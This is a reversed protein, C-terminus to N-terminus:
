TKFRKNQNTILIDKDLIKKVLYGDECKELEIDQDLGEFGLQYINNGSVYTNKIIYKPINIKM